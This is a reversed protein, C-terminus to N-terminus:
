MECFYSEEDSEPPFSFRERDTFLTDMLDDIIKIRQEENISNIEESLCAASIKEPPSKYPHKRERIEQMTELAKLRSAEAKAAAYVPDPYEDLDYTFIDKIPENINLDPEPETNKIDLMTRIMEMTTM